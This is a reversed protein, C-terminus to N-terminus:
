GADFLGCCIVAIGYFESSKLFCFTFRILGSFLLDLYEACFFTSASFTYSFFMWSSTCDGVREYRYAALWGKRASNSLCRQHFFFGKLFCLKRRKEKRSSVM